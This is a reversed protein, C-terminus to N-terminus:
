CRQKQKRFRQKQTYNRVQNMLKNKKWAQLHSMLFTSLLKKGSKINMNVTITLMQGVNLGSYALKKPEM